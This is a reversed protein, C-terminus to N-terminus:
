GVRSLRIVTDSGISGSLGSAVSDAEVSIGHLVLPTEYTMQSFSAMGSIALSASEDIYTKYDDISMAVWVDSGDAAKARCVVHTNLASVGDSLTYAPEISAIQAYVCTMAPTESTYASEPITKGSQVTANGFFIVSDSGISDSLGSVLAEADTRTGDIRVPEPLAVMSFALFQDFNLRANEDFFLKYDDIEIYLWEIAGDTTLCQCIAQNYTTKYSAISGGEQYIGLRPTIAAIEVSADWTSEEARNFTPEVTEGPTEDEAKEAPEESEELAAAQPRAETTPAETQAPAKEGGCAAMLSSVMALALLLVLLKKM